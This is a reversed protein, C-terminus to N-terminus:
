ASKLRQAMRMNNLKVELEAVRGILDWDIKKNFLADRLLQNILWQYKGSAEGLKARRKLELYIDTDMNLYVPVKAGREKQEKQEKQDKYEKSDIIEM